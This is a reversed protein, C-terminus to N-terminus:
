AHFQWYVCGSSADLSYVERGTTGIFLRGDMVAPQGAMKTVSPFAFAWKLALRPVDAATLRAQNAPQFRTQTPGVGWGNWHPRTLSTTLPARAAPCSASVRAASASAASEGTGAPKAAFSSQAAALGLLLVAVSNRM